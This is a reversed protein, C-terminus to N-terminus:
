LAETDSNSSRLIEFLEYIRDEHDPFHQFSEHNPSTFTVRMLMLYDLLHRQTESVLQVRTAQQLLNMLTLVKRPIDSSKTRMYSGNAPYRSALLEENTPRRCRVWAKHMDVLKPDSAPKAQFIHFLDQQYTEKSFGACVTLLEGSEIADVPDLLVFPKVPELYKGPKKPEGAFDSRTTRKTVTGEHPEGSRKNSAQGSM